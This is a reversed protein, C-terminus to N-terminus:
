EEYNKKGGRWYGAGIIRISSGRYTFRVTLIKSDIKGLCFLRNEVISNKSDIVIKRKPDEFVRAATVFDVGHKHMNIYEKAPDWEFGYNSNM